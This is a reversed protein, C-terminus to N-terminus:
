KLPANVSKFELRGYSSWDRDVRQAFLSGKRNDVEFPTDIVFNQVRTMAGIPNELKNAIDVFLPLRSNLFTLAVFGFGLAPKSCAEPSFLALAVMLTAMGMVSLDMIFCLSQDNCLLFYRSRQSLDLFRMNDQEFKERWNFARIHRAGVMTDSCHALLNQRAKQDLKKGAYYNTLHFFATIYVAMFMFPLFPAMFTTTVGLVVIDIPITVSASAIDMFVDPLASAIKKLDDDFRQLVTGRDLVTTFWLTTSLVAELLQHHINRSASPVVVLYYFVLNLISLVFGATGSMLVGQIIRVTGPGVDLYVRAYLSPLRHLLTACGVLLFWLSAGGWGVCDFYTSSYPSPVPRAPEGISATGDHADVGYTLSSKRSQCEDRTSLCDFVHMDYSKQDHNIDIQRMSQDGDLFYVADAMALDSSINTTMIVTVRSERLIGSKGFLNDLIKEATIRDMSNLTGDLLLVSPRRYVARALAIRQMQPETLFCGGLGVLTEDGDELERIDHNLQCANVVTTYWPADCKAHGVVNHHISASQLWVTQGCYAISKTATIIHGEALPLEGLITKILTSKGSATPGVLMSIQGPSFQVSLRDFWQTGDEFKVIVDVLEIAYHIAESTDGDNTESEEIRHFPRFEDLCLFDQIHQFANIGRRISKPGRVIAKLPTAM